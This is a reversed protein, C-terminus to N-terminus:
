NKSVPNKQIASDPRSSLSRVLRNRERLFKFGHVIMEPKEKPHGEETNYQKSVSHLHCKAHLCLRRGTCQEMTPVKNHQSPLPKMSGWNLKLM